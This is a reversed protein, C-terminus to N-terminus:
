VWLHASTPSFSPLCLRSREGLPGRKTSRFLGQDRGDVLRIVGVSVSVEEQGCDEPCDIGFVEGRLVERFLVSWHLLFGM